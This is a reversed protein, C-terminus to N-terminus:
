SKVTLTSADPFICAVQAGKKEDHPLIPRSRCFVRINGRLEQVLNFYKRRDSLEKKYKQM